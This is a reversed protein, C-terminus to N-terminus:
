TYPTNLLNDTGFRVRKPKASTECGHSLKKELPIPALKEFDDNLEEELDFDYLYQGIQM